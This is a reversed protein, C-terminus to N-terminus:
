TRIVEVTLQVVVNAIIEEISAISKVPNRSRHRWELPILKSSVKAARDLSALREEEQSVFPLAMALAQRSRGVDKSRRLRTLNRGAGNRLYFGKSSQNGSRVACDAP